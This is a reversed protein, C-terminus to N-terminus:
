GQLLGVLTVHLVARARDRTLAQSTRLREWAEWSTVMELADLMARMHGRVTCQRQFAHMPPQVDGCRDGRIRPAHFQREQQVRSVTTRDNKAGMGTIRDAIGQTNFHQVIGVAVFQAVHAGGQRFEDQAVVAEGLYRCADHIRSGGDGGVHDAVGQEPAEVQEEIQPVIHRVEYRVGGHTRPPSADHEKNM